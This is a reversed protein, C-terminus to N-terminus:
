TADGVALCDNHGAMTAVVDYQERGLFILAQTTQVPACHVNGFQAVLVKGCQIRYFNM